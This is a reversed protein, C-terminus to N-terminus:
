RIRRGPPGETQSVRVANERYALPLMGTEKEFFRYFHSRSVYGLEQVIDSISNNTEILLRKAEALRYSRGLQMLSSGTKKKVIQNLYEAHYHLADSLESRSLNGKKETLYNRIRAYIFDENSADPDLQTVHYHAPNELVGIFRALLGSIMYSVGNKQALLEQSLVDLLLEAQCSPAELHKSAANGPIVSEPPPQNLTSSFHLYSRRYKEEGKLNSFFFRHIIGDTPKTKLQEDLILDNELVSALYEPTINLYVGSFVTSSSECHRINLNMLLADGKQYRFTGHDFIQCVEGDFIYFLEFYDHQHMPTNGPPMHLYEANGPYIPMFTIHNGDSSTYMMSFPLTVQNRRSAHNDFNSIKIIEKTLRNNQLAQPNQPSPIKAPM